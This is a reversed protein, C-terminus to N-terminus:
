GPPSWGIATALADLHSAAAARESHSVRAVDTSTSEVARKAGEWDRCGFERLGARALYRRTKEFQDDDSRVVAFPVAAGTAMIALHLSNTVVFRANAVLSQLVEPTHPTLEVGGITWPWRAWAQMDVVVMRDRLSAPIVAEVVPHRHVVCYEGPELRRLAGLGPWTHLKEFPLPSILTAPCPVAHAAIGLRELVEVSEDDRVSVFRYDELYRLTEASTVGPRIGTANLLHEGRLRFPELLPAGSLLEGGGVVVGSSPLASYPSVEVTPIGRETLGDRTEWASAVDGISDHVIAATLLSVARPTTEAPETSDHRDRSSALVSDLASRSRLDARRARARRVRRSLGALEGKM